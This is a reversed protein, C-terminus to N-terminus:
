SADDTQLFFFILTVDARAFLAQITPVGDGKWRQFQVARRCEPELECLLRMRQESSAPLVISSQGCSQHGM